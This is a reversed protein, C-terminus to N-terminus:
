KYFRLEEEAKLTDALRESDTVEEDEDDEPEEDLDEPAEDDSPEALKKSRKAFQKELGDFILALETQAAPSVEKTLTEQLYENKNADKEDANKGKPKPTRLFAFLVHM